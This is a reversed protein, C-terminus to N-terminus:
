YISPMRGSDSRGRVVQLNGFVFMPNVWQTPDKVKAIIGHKELHDLEAKVQERIPAPVPRPPNVVPRMSEGIKIDYEGPICGITGDFVDKYKELVVSCNFHESQVNDIRAILSFKVSDKKCLLNICKDHNLM